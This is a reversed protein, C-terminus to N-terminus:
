HNTSVLSNRLAEEEKDHFIVVNKAIRTSRDNEGPNEEKNQIRDYNRTRDNTKLGTM